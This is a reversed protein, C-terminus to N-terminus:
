LQQAGSYTIQEGSPGTVTMTLIGSVIAFNVATPRTSLSWTAPQPINAANVPRYYLGQSLPGALDPDEFSVMAAATTGNPQRFRLKVATGAVGFAAPVADNANAFIQYDDAAGIVRAMYNNLVPAERILFAQNNFLRIFFLQQNVMSMLLGAIVIGAGIAISLELLTYGSRCRSKPFSTKM